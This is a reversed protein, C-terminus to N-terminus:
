RKIFFEFIKKDVIGLAGQVSSSFEKTECNLLPTASGSSQRRYVGTAQQISASVGPSAKSSCHQHHCNPVPVGEEADDKRAKTLPILLIHFPLLMAEVDLGVKMIVAIVAM